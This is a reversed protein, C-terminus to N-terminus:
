KERLTAGFKELVQKLVKEHVANVQEDSLTKELSRYHIRVGLNKKGEPIPKGYYLDFLEIDEILVEKLSRIEEQIDRWLVQDDLILAMDRTVEPFKPWPRFFVGAGIKPLLLDLNLDFLFAPEELDFHTQAQVSIEGMEGLVDENSFINVYRDPRFYLSPDGARFSVDQIRLAESLEEVVGKLDYFDVGADQYHHIEPFRRGTWLGCFHTVELPLSNSNLSIFVKGIEFLRLNLKRQSWNKAMTMLLGPVLSSRMVAQDESIPNSIRVLSPEAEPRSTPFLSSAKDSIFSYTIIEDFGRSAMIEKIRRRLLFPEPEKKAVSTMEPLTAPIKDYGILRAMEEILDVPRTLDRRFSPPNVKIRNEGELVASLGLRRSIELVEGASVEIGLFRSTKVPDLYITYSDQPQPYADIWGGVVEGGALEQILRAARHLAPLVGEMDVGREFRVSAETSISLRKATKRITRPEFFASEILISRTRPQIETEQGGMIGALAAGKRGDAIVLMETSLERKVGDLTVLSEGPQARRVVIRREELTEWDFAHLPQGYEMLVFNTIDVVNNISRLGISNLRQRLWFPSPGITVEKMLRAAYRPCFQPDLITVSTEGRIAEGEPGAAPAPLRLPRDFLASVERAIGILSLCDARNPTVNIELLCDELGLARSLPQGLPLGEPLIMIGSHDESLGLEKESCLMGASPRNRIVAKKVEMGGPLVMGPLALPILVGPRVNPAGCVVELIERGTSVKCLSLRDAEPHKEVERIEGVILAALEKGIPQVAEVELGAMTLAEAIKEASLGTLDVYDNLWNLTVKMFFEPNLSKLARPILGM